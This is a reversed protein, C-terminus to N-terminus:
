YKINNKVANPDFPFLPKNKDFDFDKVRNDIQMRIKLGISFGSLFLKKAYENMKEDLLIEFNKFATQQEKSLEKFFLQKADYFIPDTLDMRTKEVEVSKKLDLEGEYLKELLDM